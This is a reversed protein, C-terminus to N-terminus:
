VYECWWVWTNVGFVDCCVCERVHAGVLPVSARARRGRQGRCLWPRGGPRARGVPRRGSAGWPERCWRVCKAARAM